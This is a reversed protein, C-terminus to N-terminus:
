KRRLFRSVARTATTLADKTSVVATALGDL